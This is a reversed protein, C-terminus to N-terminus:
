LLKRKMKLEDYSKFDMITHHFPFAFNLMFPCMPSISIHMSAVLDFAGWRFVTLGCAFCIDRGGDNIFGYRALEDVGCAMEKVRTAYSAVRASEESYKRVWNFPLLTKFISNSTTNPDEVGKENHPTNSDLYVHRGSYINLIVCDRNKIYHQIGAPTKPDYDLIELQCFLCRVRGLASRDLVWIFGHRALDNIVEESYPLSHKPFSLRRGLEKYIYREHSPDNRGGDSIDDTTLFVSIDRPDRVFDGRVVQPRKLGMAHAPTTGPKSTAM